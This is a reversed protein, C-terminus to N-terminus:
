FGRSAGGGGSFGGGGHFGGGSSHGGGSFGGSSSGGGYYYGGGGSKISIIILILIFSYFVIVVIIGTTSMSDDPEDLEVSLDELNYYKVVENFLADFGTKVAQDYDDDKLYPVMYTDLIRGSKGDTITEELGYGVEIRVKREGTSILILLGNNKEKDGIGFERFLETAYDEVSLDDLTPVTVVVIQARTKENLLANKEIIYEETEKSIVDSYDNVYFDTTPSVIGKVVSPILLFILLFSKIFKSNLMRFM